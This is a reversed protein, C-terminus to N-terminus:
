GGCIIRGTKGITSEIAPSSSNPTNSCSTNDVDMTPDNVMNMVALERYDNMQDLQHTNHPVDGVVVM